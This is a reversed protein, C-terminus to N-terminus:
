PHDGKDRIVQDLDICSEFHKTPLNRLEDEALSLAQRCDEMSSLTATTMDYKEGVDAVVILVARKQCESAIAVTSILLLALAITLSKM